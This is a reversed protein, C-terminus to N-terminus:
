AAGVVAKNEDGFEDGEEQSAGGSQLMSSCDSHADEFGGDSEAEGLGDAVAAAEHGHGLGARQLRSGGAHGTGVMDVTMAGQGAATGGQPLHLGNCSTM